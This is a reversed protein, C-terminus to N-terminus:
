AMLMGTKYGIHLKFQMRRRENRFRRKKMLRNNLSLVENFGCIHWLTLFAIIAGSLPTLRNASRMWIEVKM